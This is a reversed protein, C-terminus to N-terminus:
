QAAPKEAAKKKMSMGMPAMTKPKWFDPDSKIWEPPPYSMKPNFAILSNSSSEIAAVELDHLKKMGDEGMAARFDKDETFEHDIESVSKLPNFLVYTDDTQPGYAVEYMAWKADPIKEYAAKVLTLIDSWDKRHGPKVQYLSIEFYRMQGVDVNSRLSQEENYTLITVDSDSLLEGDVVNDHDLEAALASNKQISMFDKEWADFSDYGFFFFSRPRGSLSDAGLYYSKSKVKTLAQVFAGETKEHSMGNKGPKLYERAVVLVKPPPQAGSMDQAAVMGIGGLLFLLGLLLGTLKKM